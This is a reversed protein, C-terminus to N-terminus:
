PGINNPQITDLLTKDGLLILKRQFVCEELHKQQQLLVSRAVTIKWAQESAIEDKTFEYAANVVGPPLPCSKSGTLHQLLSIVHWYTDTRRQLPADQSPHGLNSRGFQDQDSQKSEDVPVM